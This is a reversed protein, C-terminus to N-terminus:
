ANSGQRYISAVQEDGRVPTCRRAIKPAHALQSTRIRVLWFPHCSNRPFVPFERFEATLGTRMHTDGTQSLKTGSRRTLGTHALTHNGWIPGIPGLQLLGRTHALQNPLIRGLWFPHLTLGTRALTPNPEAFIQPALCRLGRACTPPM